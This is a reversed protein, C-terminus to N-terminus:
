GVALGQGARFQQEDSTFHRLFQARGIGATAEGNSDRGPRVTAIEDGLGAFQAEVERVDAPEGGVRLRLQAQDRIV